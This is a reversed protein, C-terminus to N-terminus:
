ECSQGRWTSPVAAGSEVLLRLYRLESPTQYETDVSHGQTQTAHQGHKRRKTETMCGGRGLPVLINTVM